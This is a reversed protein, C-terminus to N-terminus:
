ITSAALSRRPPAPCDITTFIGGTDLFGHTGTSDDFEGVALRREVPQKM